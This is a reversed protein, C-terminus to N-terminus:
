KSVLFIYTKRIRTDIVTLIVFYKLCVELIIKPVNHFLTHMIQLTKYILFRNVLKM